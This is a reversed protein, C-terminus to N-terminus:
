IRGEFVTAAIPMEKLADVEVEFPDHDLAVFDAKKGAALSGVMDDM